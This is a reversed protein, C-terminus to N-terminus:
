QKRIFALILCGALWGILIAFAIQILKVDLQEIVTLIM